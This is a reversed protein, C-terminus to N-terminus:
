GVGLGIVISEELGSRQVKQGIRAASESRRVCLLFAAFSLKGMKLGWEARNYPERRLGDLLQGRGSRCGSGQRTLNCRAAAEPCGRRVFYFARPRSFGM